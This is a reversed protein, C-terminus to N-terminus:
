EKIFSILLEGDLLKAKNLKMTHANRPLPIFNRVEGVDSSMVVSLDEGVREVECVEKCTSASPLSVRIELGGDEEKVKVPKGEFYVQAPDEAGFLEDGVASLLAHGKIPTQFLRLKKIPLPQFTAEADALAREQVHKWGTGYADSVAEPIVKNMIALDVNIGYLRALLYTRKLNQISFPEPTAIIRLSTIRQDLILKKLKRLLAIVKIDESIVEKSPTPIGIIPEAVKAVQAFPAVLKILKEANSGLLTPLYINKLADGSPVTDLVLAAYTQSEMFEVVKLLAVFETTVPLAAIAYVLVEDLGESRFLSLMYDQLVGYNEKVERVPDVQLAWFKETIRTPTHYVDTEFLNAITHAPDSSILLTEYGKEALKLGTASAIVSKGVGGKGTYFIVRM